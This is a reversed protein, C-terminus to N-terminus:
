KKSRFYLTEATPDYRSVKIEAMRRSIEADEKSQVEQYRGLSSTVITTADIKEDARGLNFNHETRLSSPRKPAYPMTRPSISEKTKAELEVIKKGHDDSKMKLDFIVSQQLQVTKLLAAVQREQSEFASVFRGLLEETRETTAKYDALEQSVDSSLCDVAYDRIALDIKEEVPLKEEDPANSQVLEDYELSCAVLSKMTQQRIKAMQIHRLEKMREVQLRRESIFVASDDTDEPSPSDTGVSDSSSDQSKEPSAPDEM